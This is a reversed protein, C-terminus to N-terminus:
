SWTFTADATDVLAAADLDDAVTPATGTSGLTGYCVGGM